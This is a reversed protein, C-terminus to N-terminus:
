AWWMADPPNKIVISELFAVAKEFGEERNAYSDEHEISLVYDYGVTYLANIFRKWEIADRGYGVTAFVWARNKLDGYHKTDIVGTREVVRKNLRLDKMHVHFIADGLAEVAADAKIGQWFLHSPDLNAGIVKGARERLKLLTETNYVCFGPHMELGIKDVGHSKATEAIKSWYPSLVDDWQYRLIASYEDPWPCCVWNPTKDGPAGGPCGSFALVRDVELTEALKFANLLSEHHVRATDPDPHIPNGGANLASIIMGHDELLKKYNRLAEKDSLLAEADCHPNKGALPGIYLEIATVGRSKLYPLLGPLDRDSFLFSLLGIRM